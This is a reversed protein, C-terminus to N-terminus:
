GVAVGTKEKRETEPAWGAREEKGVRREESRRHTYVRDGDRDGREDGCECTPEARDREEEARVRQAPLQADGVGRGGAGHESRGLDSSCVDSSWDSVLRTRRRRSAFVVHSSVV